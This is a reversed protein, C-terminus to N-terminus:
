EGGGDPLPAGSSSAGAAEEKRKLYRRVKANWVLNAGVGYVAGALSLGGLAYLTGGSIQAGLGPDQYRELTAWGGGVMGLGFVGLWVPGAMSRSRRFEWPDEVEPVTYSSAGAPHTGPRLQGAEVVPLVTAPGWGLGLWATAADVPIGFSLGEVGVGSMKWSVIGLVEGSTALLPGGSNGANLSADTQIFRHEEFSRHGSIIGKAVSHSLEPAGPAGIAFLESGLPPLSAVGPLCRHGSGPIRLLAVDHAPDIRVIEGPLELGEYGRVVVSSAGEVVHAATLVFGDPSAVFGAGHGRPTSVTVVGRLTDEMGAPLALPAAACSRLILPSAWRLPEEAPAEASAELALTSGLLVV